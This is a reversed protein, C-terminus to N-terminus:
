ATTSCRSPSYPSPGSSSPSPRWPRCGRRARCACPPTVSYGSPWSAPPPRPPRGTAGRTARYVVFGLAFVPLQAPLWTAAFYAVIDLNARFPNPPSTGYIRRVVDTVSFAAALVVASALFGVARGPSRTLLWLLPVLVYFNMEVNITWGGPVVGHMLLPDWATLFVMARAVGGATYPAPSVHNGQVGYWWLYFAAACWYLPVIRFVRRLYFARFPRRDRAMRQDLSLFLTYASVVFFLQVGLAGHTLANGVLPGLDPVAGRLHSLIVGVVAWGRLANIYGYHAPERTAVPAPTDGM